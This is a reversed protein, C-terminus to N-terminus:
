SKMRNKYWSNYSIMDCKKFPYKNYDESHGALPNHCYTKFVRKTGSSNYCAGCRVKGSGECLVCEKWGPHTNIRQYGPYGSDKCDLCDFGEGGCARSCPQPEYVICPKTPYHGCWKCRGM